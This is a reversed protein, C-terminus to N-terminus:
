LSLIITIAQFLMISLSSCVNLEGLNRCIDWLIITLICPNCEGPMGSLITLM